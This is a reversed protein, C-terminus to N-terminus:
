RGEPLIVVDIRRNMARGEATENNAVPRTEGYGLARVQSGPLITSALLYDRVSNARRESLALNMTDNGVSDTHGEVLLVLSAGPFIDPVDAIKRLLQFYQSKIVSEGSDFSLGVLRIIVNDEEQVIRAEDPRFLGELADVQRQRLESAQARETTMGLSEELEAIRTNAVELQESKSKLDEIRALSADRSVVYGASMDRSSDLAEGIAGLPQEWELILEEPTVQKNKLRQAQGALHRSHKAEYEAERAMALPGETAYRNQQLDSEAKEVLREAKALTKPAFKEVKEERAASIQKRAENLIAGQIATLESRSYIARADDAYDKARNVDGAELRRAARDFLKQADSWQEAALTAANATVAADRVKLTESFTVRAIRAAEEAAQLSENAADLDKRISEISKGRGIKDEARSYYKEAEQFNGPSLLPVSAARADNLAAETERMLSDRLDQAPSAAVILMLAAALFQQSLYQRINM